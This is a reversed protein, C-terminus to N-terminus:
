AQAFRLHLVFPKVPKGSDFDDVFKAESPSLTLEAGDVEVTETTIKVNEFGREKLALAIPCLTMRGMKGAKIHKRTVQIKM